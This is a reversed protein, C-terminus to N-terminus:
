DVALSAMVADLALPRSINRRLRSELEDLGRTAQSVWLWDVREGLRLIDQHLDPNRLLISRPSHRVELVDTLLSYFVRLVNEFSEQEQKALQATAAFIEGYKEGTAARHLLRLISQRIRASAELDIELARGPSGDALRAARDREAAKKDPARQRLFDEIQEVSVPAFHFQLSRSRITPLVSDPLDSSCM